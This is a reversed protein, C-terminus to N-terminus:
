DQDKKIVIKTRNNNISPDGLTFQKIYLRCKNIYDCKNIFTPASASIRSFSCGVLPNSFLIQDVLLLDHDRIEADATVIFKRITGIVFVRFLYLYQGSDITV